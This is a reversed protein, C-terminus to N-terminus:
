FILEWREETLGAKWQRNPKSEVLVFGSRKYLNRAAPLNSLTWLSIKSFRKRGYEIAKDLLKRGIGLNRHSPETYFWRLQSNRDGSDVIAVAGIIKGESEAVWVKGHGSDSKLYDAMGLIVYEEFSSNFGYERAYLVAHRYVIFGLDGPKRERVLFKKERRELTRRISSMSSLLETGEEQSFNEILGGVRKNSAINLEKFVRNGKPSLKLNLIRTDQSNKSRVIFGKKEFQHLIRSLYGKDINLLKALDSATIGSSNGIEFLLRAETISYDSDLFKKDLLGLVNTYYRNFERIGNIYVQKSKESM